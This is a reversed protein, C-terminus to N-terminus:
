GILSTGSGRERSRSGKKVCSKPYDGKGIACQEAEDTSPAVAVDCSSLTDRPSHLKQKCLQRSDLYGTPDSGSTQKGLVECSIRGAFDLPVGVLLKKALRVSMGQLLVALREVLDVLRQLHSGAERVVFQKTQGLRACMFVTPRRASCGWLPRTEAESVSSPAEEM